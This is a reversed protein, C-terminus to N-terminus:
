GYNEEKMSKEIFAVEREQIELLSKATNIIYDQKKESFDKFVKSLYELSEKKVVDKRFIVGQM